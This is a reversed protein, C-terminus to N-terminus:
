YTLIPEYNENNKAGLCSIARSSLPKKAATKWPDVDQPGYADIDYNGGDYELCVFEEINAFYMM